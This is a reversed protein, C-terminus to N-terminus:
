ETKMAALKEPEFSAFVIMEYRARSVAVNLRREGGANNIPGFRYYMKGEKDPGYCVSFLIVDREDGQINELNKVIIPEPSEANILELDKNAAFFDQLLDEVVEQQVVSFTVVGISKKRLEPSRLRRGIEQVIAQAEIINTAKKVGYVGEVKRFTVKSLMDNPSPFTTLKNQYFKANSFRILSEHKSRYHWLLSRAPMGIVDCDDLISDQDGLDVYEEDSGKTKFFATPPMQKSDGVVILSKGRSIAGVAESTPMQSAEDFIVIDFKPMNPSLYQACSIPSMLFIPFLKTLIHQTENFLQRISKGRCRNKVARNLIGQESSMPSRDNIVPTHASVKAATEKIISLSFKDILEKYSEIHRKLEVSNFSGNEDGVIVKGLIFEYISKCFIDRLNSIDSLSLKDAVDLIFGLDNALCENRVRLFACWTSLHDIRDCWGDILEVTNGYDIGYKACLLFDFKLDNELTKEVERVREYKGIFEDKNLLSYEQTKQIVTRLENVGLIKAYASQLEFSANIRKSADKFGFDRVTDKDLEGLVNRNFIFKYFASSELLEKEVSLVQALQAYLVPLNAEKIAKPNKAHKKLNSILKNTKIAKTIFFAKRSSEYLAKDSQYDFTFVSDNFKSRIAEIVGQYEVGKKLFAGFKEDGNLTTGIFSPIAYGTKDDKLVNYLASVKDRTFDTDLSNAEKFSGYAKLFETVAAKYVASHKLLGNKSIGPIYNTDGYLVFPNDKIGNTEYIANTLRDLLAEAKEMKEANLSSIYDEPVEVAEVNEAIQLYRVFADYFSIFYDTKKHLLNIVRNLEVRETKLEESIKEFEESNSSTVGLSIRRDFQEMISTKDSKISHAELAFMDLSLKKLRKQVVELAAMKEAVFLVSKGHFIANVIMNTITQSKGTGPPGQLIFSKGDACDRIAAIQSSDASLPIALDKPESKDDDFGELLKEEDNLIYQGDIISKIVKHNALEDRRYRIDQWMVAKSFNFTNLVATRIVTARRIKKVKEAVTNLIKDVDVDGEFLPMSLLDDFDMKFEQHFFEFISINLFPVEERGVLSYSEKSHRKLDVPVLIIPSFMPLQAKDSEFWSIFGVGLYLVNSGSEEFASRRERDFFKLSANINSNRKVVSLTGDNFSSAIMKYNEETAHPLELLEYQSLNMDSERIAYSRGKKEFARYLANMDYSLIQLGKGRLKYDILQNRKSLDLLKKEWIDFKGIDAKGLELQGNTHSYEK